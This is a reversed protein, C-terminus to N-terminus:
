LRAPPDRGCSVRLSLPPASGAPELGRVSEPWGPLPGSPGTWCAGRSDQELRLGVPWARPEASLAGCGRAGDMNGRPTWLGQYVRPPPEATGPSVEREWLRQRGEVRGTWRGPSLFSTPPHRRRPSSAVAAAPVEGPTPTHAGPRPHLPARSTPWPGRSVLLRRTVPTPATEKSTPPAPPPAGALPEVRMREICARRPSPFVM